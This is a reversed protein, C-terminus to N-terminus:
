LLKELPIAKAAVEERTIDQAKSRQEYKLDIMSERIRYVADIVEQPYKETESFILATGKPRGKDKIDLGVQKRLQMIKNTSVFAIKGQTKQSFYPDILILDEKVQQSLKIM